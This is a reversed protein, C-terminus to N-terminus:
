RAGRLGRRRVFWGLDGAKLVQVFVGSEQGFEPTQYVFQLVVHLERAFAVM